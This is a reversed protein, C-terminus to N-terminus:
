VIRKTPLTLHTYSVTEGIVEGEEGLTCTVVAVEHGLRRAKALALGTWLTEDDPHAHVAMVTITHAPEPNSSM